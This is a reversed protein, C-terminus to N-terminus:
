RAITGTVEPSVVTIRAGAAVLAEIKRAAVAGGGIVTVPQGALDLFIPHPWSRHTDGSM